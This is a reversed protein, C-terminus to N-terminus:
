KNFYTKHSQNYKTTAQFSDMLYDFDKKVSKYDYYYEIDKLNNSFYLIDKGNILIIKYKKEDTYNDNEEVALIYDVSKYIGSSYISFLNGNDTKTDIFGVRKIKTNFFRRNASTFYTSGQM